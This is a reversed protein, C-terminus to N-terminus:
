CNWSCAESLFLILAFCSISDCSMEPSADMKGGVLNVVAAAKKRFAVSYGCVM